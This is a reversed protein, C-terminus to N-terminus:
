FDFVFGYQQQGQDHIIPVIDHNRIWQERATVFRMTPDVYPVTTQHQLHNAPAGFIYNEVDSKLIQIQLGGGEGSNPDTTDALAHTSITGNNEIICVHTFSAATSLVGLIDEEVACAYFQRANNQFRHKFIVTGRPLHVFHETGTVYHQTAPFAFNKLMPVGCTHLHQDVPPLPTFFITNDVQAM